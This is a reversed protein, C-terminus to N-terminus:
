YFNVIISFLVLHTKLDHAVTHAFSDLEENRIELQENIRHLRNGTIKRESVDRGVSILYKPNGDEDKLLSINYETPIEGM